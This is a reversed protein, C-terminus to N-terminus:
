VVVDPRCHYAPQELAKAGEAVTQVYGDPDSVIRGLTWGPLAMTDDSFMADLSTRAMQEHVGYLHPHALSVHMYGLGALPEAGTMTRAQDITSRVADMLLAHGMVDYPLGVFVDSSRILLTSSLRNATISLTFGVPCPVNKSPRGLGDEAPDWASIFVRRDSPNALLAEVADKVQDRGFHRRWRHGYAGAVTTGDEEVFKDWLPAYKRIFSVDRDGQLFWAVEAAASRPFTRRVGCMPLRNDFLPLTLSQPRGVHITAGTRENVEEVGVDLLENLLSEYIPRFGSM